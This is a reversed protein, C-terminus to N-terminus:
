THPVAYRPHLACDLRDKGTCRLVDQTLSRAWERVGSWLIRIWQRALRETRPRSQAVRDIEAFVYEARSWAIGSVVPDVSRLYPRVYDFFSREVQDVRSDWEAPTIEDAEGSRCSRELLAALEGLDVFGLAQEVLAVAEKFEVGNSYQAFDIADGGRGCGFCYWHTRQIYFSPTVEGHLPCRVHDPLHPPIDLEPCVLELAELFPVEKIRAIRDQLRM